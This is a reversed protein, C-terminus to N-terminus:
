TNQSLAKVAITLAAKLDAAKENNRILRLTETSYVEELPLGGEPAVAPITLREPAFGCDYALRQNGEQFRDKLATRLRTSLHAAYGEFLGAMIEPKLIRAAQPESLRQRCFLSFSKALTPRVNKRTLNKSQPDSAFGAFTLFDSIVSGDTLRSYARVAVHAPLSMLGAVLRDYDFHFTWDEHRLEGRDIVSKCLQAPDDALRHHLMEFFLSEFYSAQERVWFLITFTHHRLLRHELLPAFRSPASLISEFDESSLVADGQFSAIESAVDEM